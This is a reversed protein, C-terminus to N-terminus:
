LIIKIFIILIISKCENSFKNMMMNQQEELILYENSILSMQHNGPHVINFKSKKDM